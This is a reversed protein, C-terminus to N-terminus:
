VPWPEAKPKLHVQSKLEAVRREYQAQRDEDGINYGLQKFHQQWLNRTAASVGGYPASLIEALALMEPSWYTPVAVFHKPQRAM